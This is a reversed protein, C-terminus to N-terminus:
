HQRRQPQGRGFPWGLRDAGGPGSGRCHMADSRHLGCKQIAQGVGTRLGHLGRSIGEPDLRLAALTGLRREVAPGIRGSDRQPAAGGGRGAAWDGGRRLAAGCGAIGSGGHRDDAARAARWGDPGDTGTEGSFVAGTGWVVSRSHYERASLPADYRAFGGEAFNWKGVKHDIRM